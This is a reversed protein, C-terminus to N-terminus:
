KKLRYVNEIKEYQPCKKELDKWAQNRQITIAILCAFCIGSSLLWILVFGIRNKFEDHKTTGFCGVLFAVGLLTFIVIQTNEM